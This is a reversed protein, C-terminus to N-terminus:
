LLDNSKYADYFDKVRFLLLKEKDKRDIEKVNDLLNYILNLIRYIKTDKMTIELNSSIKKQRLLQYDSKAEEANEQAEFIRYNEKLDDNEKSVKRNEKEVEELKRVLGLLEGFKSSFEHIEVNINKKDFIEKAPLSFNESIKLEKENFDNESLQLINEVILGKEEFKKVIEKEFPSFKVKNVFYIKKYRKLFNNSINEVNRLMYPLILGKLQCTEKVKEDVMKLTEFLDEQWKELEVKELDIKYEQLEAFLNYYNYAIDIIDYYSSVELKKKLKENLSNYFLVVQKEEKVIIKDTVFLNEYFDYNNMLRFNNFLQNESDKLLERRLEYYTMPNEFVYLAEENKTFEQFLYEKLNTGLGLYKTDMEKSRECNRLLFFFDFYIRSKRIIKGSPIVSCCDLIGSSDM